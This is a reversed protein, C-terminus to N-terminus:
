KPGDNKFAQMLRKSLSNANDAKEELEGAQKYFREPTIKQRYFHRVAGGEMQPQWLGHVVRNRIDNLKSFENILRKILDAKEKARSKSFVDKAVACLMRVDYGEVVADHQKNLGIEEALKLRIVFEVISFEYIFRGIARYTKEADQDQSKATM